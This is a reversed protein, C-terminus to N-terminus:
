GVELWRALLKIVVTVAGAAVLLLSLRILFWGVFWEVEFYELDTM